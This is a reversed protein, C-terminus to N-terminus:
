ATCKDTDVLQLRRGVARTEYAGLVGGKGDVRVFIQRSSRLMQSLGGQTVGIQKAVVEQTHDKVYERIPIDRM